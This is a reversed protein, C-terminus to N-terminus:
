KSTKTMAMKIMYKLLKCVNEKLMKLYHLKKMEFHLEDFEEIQDTSPSYRMTDKNELFMLFVADCKGM